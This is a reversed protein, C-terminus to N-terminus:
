QPSYRLQCRARSQHGLNQTQVLGKGRRVHRAWRQWNPLKFSAIYSSSINPTIIIIINPIHYWVQYWVQYWVWYIYIYLMYLIILIHHDHLLFLLKLLLIKMKDGTMYKRDHQSIYVDHYYFHVVYENTVEVNSTSLVRGLRQWGSGAKASVRVESQLSPM